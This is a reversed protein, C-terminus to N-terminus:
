MNMIQKEAIIKHILLHKKKHILLHKLMFKIKILIFFYNLHFEMSILFFTIHM